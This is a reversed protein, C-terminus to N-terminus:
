ALPGSCVTMANCPGLRPLVFEEGTGYMRSYYGSANAAVTNPMFAKSTLDPRNLYGQALGCGSTFLEGPVGVPVPQKRADLIYIDNHPIPKGVLIPIQLPKSALNKFIACSIHESAETPGYGFYLNIEPLRERLTELTSVPLAEAGTLLWRLSPIMSASLGAAVWSQVQMIPGGVTLLSPM